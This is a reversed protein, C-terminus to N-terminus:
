SLKENITGFLDDESFVDFRKEITEISGESKNCSFIPIFSYKVFHNSFFNVMKNLRGESVEIAAEANDIGIWNRQLEEAAVLTTGSGCFCDLVISDPNSSANVITKLMDLNKETPYIPYPSDKFTWIDQMKKGKAIVEDAYIIRRPNGSKSWEIQGSQDLLDLEKPDCRWHRGKPPYMGHWMEGTSGKQTEGPAHIPVTTYRRGQNDIKPFRDFVDTEGFSERPDNWIPSPGKSYFLIMDKINGYASRSFNKPNCKIRSIDNRFNKFGFIEDMIIKVYHGIKYDIHLYISGQESLLERILILRLRLFEIFDSGSLTDQYATKDNKSRSVTSVRDKGITFITNTSFPPDIYVLDIKGAYGNRLLFKMVDVNDGHFLMKNCPTFNGAITTSAPKQLFLDEPIKHHYSLIM